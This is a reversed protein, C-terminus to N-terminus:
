PSRRRDPAGRRTQVTSSTRQAVQLQLQLQLWISMFPARHQVRTTRECATTFESIEPQVDANRTNTTSSASRIGLLRTRTSHPPRVPITHQREYIHKYSYIHTRANLVHKHVGQTHSRACTAMEDLVPWRYGHAASRMPRKEANTYKPQLQSSWFSLISSTVSENAPINRYRVLINCETNWSRKAYTWAIHRHVSYFAFKVNLGAILWEDARSFKKFYKLIFTIIYCQNQTRVTCQPPPIHPTRTVERSWM